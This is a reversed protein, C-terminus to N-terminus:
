VEDLSTDPQAATPTYVTRAKSEHADNTTLPREPTAQRPLGHGM